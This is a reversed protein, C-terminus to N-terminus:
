SSCSSDPFFSACDLADNCPAFEGTWAQASRDFASCGADEFCPAAEECPNGGGEVATANPIFEPPPYYEGACRFLGLGEQVNVLAGFPGFQDGDGVVSYWDIGVPTDLLSFPFVVKSLQTSFHDFLLFSDVSLKGGITPDSIFNVGM